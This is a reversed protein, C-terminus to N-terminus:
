ELESRLAEVDFMEDANQTMGLWAEETEESPIYEVPNGSEESWQQVEESEIATKAAEELINSKEESVGPPHVLVRMIIALADMNPYGLDTITPTDPLGPHGGSHLVAIYDILGEEKFSLGSATSGVAVPVENSTVARAVEGDGDYHIAEPWNWGTELKLHVANAWPPTGPQSLGIRQFEGSEFRAKIDDYGEFEHDPNAYISYAGRTLGAFPFLEGIPFDLQDPNMQSYFPSGPFPSGGITYGDPDARYVEQLGPLGGPGPKNEFVMSVGLPDQM